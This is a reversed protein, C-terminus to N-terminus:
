PGCDPGSVPVATQVSAVGPLELKLPSVCGAKHQFEEPTVFDGHVFRARRGGWRQMCRRLWRYRNTQRCSRALAPGVQDLVLGATPAIGKSVNQDRVWSVLRWENVFKRAEALQRVASKDHEAPKLLVASVEPSLAAYWDRVDGDDGACGKMRLYELPVEVDFEALAFTRVVVAQMWLTCARPGEASLRQKKTIAVAAKLEAKVKAQRRRLDAARSHLHALSPMAALQSSCATAVLERVIRCSCAFALYDRSSQGALGSVGGPCSEM